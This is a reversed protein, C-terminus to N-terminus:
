VSHSSRSNSVVESASSARGNSPIKLPISLYARHAPPYLHFARSPERLGSVDLDLSSLHASQKVLAGVASASWGRQSGVELSRLTETSATEGIIGLYLDSRVWADNVVLSQVRLAAPIVGRVREIEARVSEPINNQQPVSFRLLKFLLEDITSFMGLLLLLHSSSRDFSGGYDIRLRKLKFTTKEQVKPAVILSVSPDDMWESSDSFPPMYLFLKTLNPLTSLLAKLLQPTVPTRTILGPQYQTIEGNLSLDRICCAIHPHTALFLLFDRYRSEGAQVTDFLNYRSRSLWSSTVLSCARLSIRDGQLNDIVTDLM